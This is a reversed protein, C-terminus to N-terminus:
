NSIVHNKTFISYNFLFLFFFLLYPSFYLIDRYRSSIFIFFFFYFLHVYICTYYINLFNAFHFFLETWTVSSQSKYSSFNRIGNNIDRQQFVVYNLLRYGSVHNMTTLIVHTEVSWDVVDLIMGDSRYITLGLSAHFKRGMGTRKSWSIARQSVPFACEGGSVCKERTWRDRKREKEKSLRSLCENIGGKLLDNNM